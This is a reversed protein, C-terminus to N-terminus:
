TCANCGALPQCAPLVRPRAPASRRRAALATLATLAILIRQPLGPAQGPGHPPLGNRARRAAQAIAARNAQRQRDAIQAKVIEAQITPHMM